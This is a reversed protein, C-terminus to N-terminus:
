FSLRKQRTSVQVARGQQGQDRDIGCLLTSCTLNMKNNSGSNAAGLDYHDGFVVNGVSGSISADFGDLCDSGETQMQGSSEKVDLNPQFHLTRRATSFNLQPKRSMIKSGGFASSQTQLSSFPFICM